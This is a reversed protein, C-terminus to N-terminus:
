WLDPQSGSSCRSLVACLICQRVTGHRPEQAIGKRVSHLRGAGLVSVGNTVGPIGQDGRAGDHGQRRRSRRGVEGHDQRAFSLRDLLGRRLADVVEQGGSLSCIWELWLGRAATRASSCSGHSPKKISPSEHIDEATRHAPQMEDHRTADLTGSTPAQGRQPCADCCGFCVPARPRAYRLGCPYTAQGSRLGEISGTSVCWSRWPCGPM